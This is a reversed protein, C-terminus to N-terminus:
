PCCSPPAPPYRCRGAGVHVAQHLRFPAPPPAAPVSNVTAFSTLSWTSNLGALDLIGASRSRSGGSPPWPNQRRRWPRRLSRLPGGPSREVLQHRGSRVLIQSFHLEFVPRPFAAAALLSIAPCFRPRCFPGARARIGLPQRELHAVFLRVPLLAQRSSYGTSSLATQRSNGGSM